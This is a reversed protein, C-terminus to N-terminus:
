ASKAVKTYKIVDVPCGEAAAAIAAPDDLPANERVICTDALVQFVLPAENECADCVICGPEIWVKTVAFDVVKAPGGAAKPGGKKKEVAGEVVAEVHRWPFIRTQTSWSDVTTPSMVEVVKADVQLPSQALAERIKKKSIKTLVTEGQPNELEIVVYSRTVAKASNALGNDTLKLYDEEKLKMPLVFSKRKASSDEFTFSFATSRGGRVLEYFTCKIRSIQTELEDDWTVYLGLMTRGEDQIDTKVIKVKPAGWAANLIKILAYLTFPGGLILLVVVMAIILNGM